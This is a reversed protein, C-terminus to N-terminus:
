KAIEDYIDILDDVIYEVKHRIEAKQRSAISFNSALEDNDFIQKVYYALMYPADAQYYFGEKGHELLNAVGGVMSSVVPVGLMMAECVSNPSNEISSASVFVHSKLYRNVMQQENLFDTFHVFQRLDNRQIYELIYKEYYSHKYKSKEYYSKGAIYLTIDPFEKKLITMAELGLHLGKIPSTAQSMFISHKDCRNINWKPSVYFSDRLMENNFHYQIKPNIQMTCARDWDTRGIVHRVNEINKIELQGLKSFRKAGSQVNGKYIDRITIGSVVKHQLFATYHKSYVSVMGQISIVVKDSIGLKKCIETVVYSHAGETGFIHVVDPRVKRIIETVRDESQSINRALVQKENLVFSYFSIKGTKGNQISQYPFAISLHINKVRSIENALKVMWGGVPVSKVGLAESIQPIAINNIWLINM